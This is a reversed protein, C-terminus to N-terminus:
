VHRNRSTSVGREGHQEAEGAVGVERTRHGPQVDETSCINAAQSLSPM